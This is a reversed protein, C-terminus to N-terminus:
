KGDPTNEVSKLLELLTETFLLLNEECALEGYRRLERHFRSEDPGARNSSKVAMLIYQLVYLGCEWGERQRPLLAVTHLPAHPPGISLAGLSEVTELALASHYPALSDLHYWRKNRTRYFLLSWHSHGVLPLLIIPPLPERTFQTHLHKSDKHHFRFASELLVSDVMRVQEERYPMKWAMLYFLHNLAIDNLHTGRECLQKRIEPIYFPHFLKAFYNDM